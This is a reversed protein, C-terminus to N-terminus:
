YRMISEHLNLIVRAVSTWAALEAADNHEPVASEGVELLQEALKPEEAYRLQHSDQLQSLVREERDTPQRNLAQEFAFRLRQEVTDGGEDMIRTAFARAAEVYTPDNLLVLAQLPTNSRPREVTCEERSPADFAALSPHLFTRQWYTYLGRRYLSDGTDHKWTRKPFNLHQWYGAPQYPKVSRGGIERSLLGSIALANDRVLEADLRFRNQRGFWRNTPDREQLEPSPESTLQYTRSMLMLKVLRKVDWGSDMLEVALWDLLEPHSPWEGQTGFDALSRVLGEGFFLKWLRNVFVRAVLPNDRSVMWRALALRAQQRETIPAPPLAAPTAPTVIEGSDDLWNGRPLIRVTRPTGSVSILTKPLNAEIAQIQKEM